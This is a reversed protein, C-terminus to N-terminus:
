ITFLPSPSPKAEASSLLDDPGPNLKGLHFMNWLVLKCMENSENSPSLAKRIYESNQIKSIGEFGLNWETKQSLEQNGFKKSSRVKIGSQETITILIKVLM